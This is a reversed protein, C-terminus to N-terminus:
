FLSGQVVMKELVVHTFEAVEVVVRTLIEQKVVYQQFEEVAKDEDVQVVLLPQEVQEELVQVEQPDEVLEVV